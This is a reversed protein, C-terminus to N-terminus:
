NPNNRQLNQCVQPALFSWKCLVVFLLCIAFGHPRGCVNIFTALPLKSVGSVVNAVLSIM